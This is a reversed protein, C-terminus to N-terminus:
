LFQAQNAIIKILIFIQNTFNLLIQLLKRIIHLLNIRLKETTDKYIKKLNQM